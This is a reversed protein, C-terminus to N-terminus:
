VDRRLLFVAIGLLEDVKQLLLGCRPAIQLATVRGHHLRKQSGLVSALTCKVEKPGRHGIKLRDIAIM